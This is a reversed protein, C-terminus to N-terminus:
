VHLMCIALCAGHYTIGDAGCVVGKGRMDCGQSCDQAGATGM